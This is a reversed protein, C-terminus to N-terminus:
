LSRRSINGGGWDSVGGSGVAVAVAEVREREAEVEEAVRGRGSTLTPLLVGQSRFECRCVPGSSRLPKRPPSMSRGSSGGSTRFRQKTPSCAPSTIVRKKNCKEKLDHIKVAEADNVKLEAKSFQRIVAPKSRKTAGQAPSPHNVEEV